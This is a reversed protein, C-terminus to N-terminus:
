GKARVGFWFMRRPEGYGLAEQYHTDGLNEVRATLQLRDTLAYSGALNALVFGPRPAPAFTSPDIDADKGEARLTFSARWRDQAWDLSVSGANRPVRLMQTAAVEDVADTYAYEAHVSLSRTLRADVEAELGDTRTRDLNFYRFPFSPSFEIQDRVSLRYATLRASYRRDSSAWALAADWGEAHEPKLGTSPGGPFCFDCFIESITPTKFGQGWSGEVQFGAPLKLVASARGTAQGHFRDPADYRLSGTLTLPAVPRFRAVVFGSTTGLALSSGDSLSGREHLREAGFVM